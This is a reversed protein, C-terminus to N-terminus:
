TVKLGGGFAEGRPEDLNPPPSPNYHQNKRFVFRTTPNQLTQSKVTKRHLRVKVQM